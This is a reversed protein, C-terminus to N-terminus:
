RNVSIEFSKNTEKDQNTISIEIKKGSFHPIKRLLASKVEDIRTFNDDYVTALLKRQKPCYASAKITDNKAIRFRGM